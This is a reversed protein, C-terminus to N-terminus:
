QRRLKIVKGSGGPQREFLLVKDFAFDFAWQALDESRLCVEGPGLFLDNVILL